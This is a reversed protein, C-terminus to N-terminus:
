VRDESCWGHACSCLGGEAAAAGWLSGFVALGAGACADGAVVDQVFTVAGRALAAAVAHRPASFSFASVCLLDLGPVGRRGGDNCSPRWEGWEGGVEWGAWPGRGARPLLFPVTGDPLLGVVGPEVFM